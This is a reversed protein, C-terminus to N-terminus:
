GIVGFAVATRDDMWDDVGSPGTATRAAALLRTCVAEPTREEMQAVQAAIAEVVEDGSANLAETIGDSVFVVLDGDGFNLEEEEFGADRLLGAPPGGVRLGRAGRPSWLVGPPHGANVYVMSREKPDVIAVICTVYLGSTSDTLLASSLNTLLTRPHTADRAMAHLTARVNALFVAAGVGKGSVDALVVCMRGGPLAVFDYYDGGVKGAPEVVAYWGIGASPGPLAPLLSTQVRAAITLQTEAVIQQRELDTLAVQTERLRVWLWTVAVFAGAMVAESIWTIENANPRLIRNVFLEIGQSAAIGCLVLALFLYTRHTTSSEMLAKSPLDAALGSGAAECSGSLATM